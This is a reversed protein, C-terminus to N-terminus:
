GRVRAAGGSLFHLAAREPPAGNRNRGGDGARCLGDILPRRGCAWNREILLALSGKTSNAAPVTTNRSPSAPPSMNMMSDPMMNHNLHYMVWLSGSLAIVVLMVTFLLALMISPLFITRLVHTLRSEGKRM